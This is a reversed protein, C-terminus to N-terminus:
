HSAYDSYSPLLGFTRVGLAMFGILLVMAIAVLVIM